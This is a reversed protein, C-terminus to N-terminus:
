DLSCSRHEFIINTPLPRPISLPIDSVDMLVSIIMLKDTWSAVRRYKLLGHRKVLRNKVARSFYVNLCADVLCILIKSVRDWIKNIDVYRHVVVTLLNAQIIRGAQVSSSM